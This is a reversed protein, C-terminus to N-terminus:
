FLTRSVVVGFSCQLHHQELIELAAAAAPMTRHTRPSSYPTSVSTISSSDRSSISSYRQCRSSSDASFMGHVGRAGVAFSPDGYSRSIAAMHTYRYIRALLNQNSRKETSMM